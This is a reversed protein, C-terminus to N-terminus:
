DPSDQAFYNGGRYKIGVKCTLGLRRAKKYVAYLTRGLNDALKKCDISGFNDRLLKIEQTSWAKRNEFFVKTANRRLGMKKGKVIIADLSRRPLLNILEEKPSSHYNEKLIRIEELTWNCGASRLAYPAKSIWELTKTAKDRKVTLYPLLESLVHKVNYRGCVSWRYVEKYYEKGKPKGVHIAGFGFYNRFLKIPEAVTNSVELAPVSHSRSISGEGDFFGALYVKIERDEM